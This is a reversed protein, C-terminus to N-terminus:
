KANEYTKIASDIDEAVILAVTLGDRRVVGAEIIPLNETLYVEASKKKYALRNKLKAEIDAANDADAARVIIVEDPLMGLGTQYAAVVSYQDDAIGTLDLLEDSSLEIMESLGAATEVASYLVGPEPLEAAKRSCGATMAAFISVFVAALAIKRFM